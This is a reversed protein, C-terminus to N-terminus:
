DWHQALVFKFQGLLYEDVDKTDKIYQVADDFSNFVRHFKNEWIRVLDTETLGEYRGEEDWYLWRGALSKSNSVYLGEDENIAAYYLEASPCYKEVLQVWVKLKPEYRTTTYLNIANDWIVTGDLQGYDNDGNHNCKLDAIKFYLDKLEKANDSIIRIRTTCYTTM